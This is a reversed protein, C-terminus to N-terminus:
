RVLAQAPPGSLPQGFGELLQAIEAAEREDVLGVVMGAHVLVHDGPMPHESDALLAYSVSRLVGSIEVRLIRRDEDRIEVVRGPMGLCM